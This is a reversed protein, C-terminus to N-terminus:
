ILKESEEPSLYSKTRILLDNSDLFKLQVNNVLNIQPSSRRLKELIKDPSFETCKEECIREIRLEYGGEFDIGLNIPRKYSTYFTSIFIGILSLTIFFSSFVFTKKKNKVLDYNFLKMRM